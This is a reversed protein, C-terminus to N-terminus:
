LILSCLLLDGDGTMCSELDLLLPLMRDNLLFDSAIEGFWFSYSALNFANMLFSSILLCLSWLSAVRVSMLVGTDELTFSFSSFLLLASDEVSFFFLNQFIYRVYISFKHYLFFLESFFFCRFVSFGYRWQAHLMLLISVPSLSKLVIRM